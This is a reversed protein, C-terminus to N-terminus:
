VLLLKGLEMDRKKNLYIIIAFLIWFPLDVTITGYSLINSWEFLGRVFLAIGSATMGIILLSLRSNINQYIKLASFCNRFFIVPLIISTFLGLIGMDSFLFLYFNHAHGFELQNMHMNILREQPSGLMYPLNKYLEYKTGGPGVGVFFHNQIVQMVTSIIENRGSLVKELRFYVQFIIAFPGFFVLSLFLMVGSIIWKLIKKNLKYFIFIIGSLYCVFAERSNAVILAILFLILYFIILKKNHSDFLFPILVLSSMVILNTLANPHIYSKSTRYVQNLEVQILSFGSEGFNYMIYIFYILAAILIINLYLEIKIGYFLASYIFYILLFFITTRLIQECGIIKYNSFVISLTFASYLILFFFLVSKAIRPYKGLNFGNEKFFFYFLNCFGIIQLIQRLETNITNTITLFSLLIFFYLYKRDSQKYIILISIIVLIIWLYNQFISLLLGLLLGPVIIKSYSNM